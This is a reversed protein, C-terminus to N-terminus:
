VGTLEIIAFQDTVAFTPSISWAYNWTMDTDEDMWALAELPFENSWVGVMGAEFLKVKGAEQRPTRYVNTIDVAALAQGVGAAGYYRVLNAYDVPNMIASNFVHNREEVDILTQVAVLDSLPQSAHTTNNYTTSVYSAWTAAAPTTRGTAAIVATLEGLGMIEVDRRITNAAQLMAQDILDVRNRKREEKTLLLKQGIKRPTAVMPVGRNFRQVPFQTGPAMEQARRGAYLDTLLPNPREFLLAGGEIGPGARFVKDMYFRQAAFQAISRTLVTPANIYQDVTVLTGDTVVPDLPYPIPSDAM